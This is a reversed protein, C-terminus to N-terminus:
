DPSAVVPWQNGTALGDCRPNRIGDDSELHHHENATQGWHGCHEDIRANRTEGARHSVIWTETTTVEADEDRTVGGLRRLDLRYQLLTSRILHTTFVSGVWICVRARRPRAATTTDSGNAKPAHAH